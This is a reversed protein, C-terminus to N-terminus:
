EAVELLTFPRDSYAAETEILTARTALQIARPSPVATTAFQADNM